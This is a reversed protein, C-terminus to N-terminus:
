YLKQNCVTIAPVYGGSIGSCMMNGKPCNAYAYKWKVCDLISKNRCKFCPLGEDKATNSNSELANRLFEKAVNQAIETTM